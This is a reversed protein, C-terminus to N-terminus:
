DAAGQFIWSTEGRHIYTLMMLPIDFQSINNNEEPFLFTLPDTGKGWLYLMGQGM